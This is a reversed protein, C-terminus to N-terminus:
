TTMRWKFFFFYVNDPITQQSHGKSNRNTGTDIWVISFILSPEKRNGFRNNKLIAFSLSSKNQFSIGFKM